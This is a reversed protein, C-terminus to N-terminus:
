LWGECVWHRIACKQGAIQSSQFQGPQRPLSGKPLRPEKKLQSITHGSMAAAARAADMQNAFAKSQKGGYQAYFGPPMRSPNGPLRKTVYKYRIDEELLKANDKIPM